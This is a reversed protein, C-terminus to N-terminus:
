GNSPTYFGRRPAPRLLSDTSPTQQLKSTPTAFEEVNVFNSWYDTPLKMLHEM